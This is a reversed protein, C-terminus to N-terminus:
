NQTKKLVDIDNFELTKRRITLTMMILAIRPYIYEGGLTSAKMKQIDRYLGPGIFAWSRQMLQGDEDEAFDSGSIALDVAELLEETERLLLKPDARETMWDQALLTAMVDVNPLPGTLANDGTMFMM